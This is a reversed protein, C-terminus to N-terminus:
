TFMKEWHTSDHKSQKSFVDLGISRKFIFTDDKLVYWSQLEDWHGDVATLHFEKQFLKFKNSFTKIIENFQEMTDSTDTEEYTYVKNYGKQQRLFDYMSFSEFQTDFSLCQIDYDEYYNGNETIAFTMQHLTDACVYHTDKIDGDALEILLKCPNGSFDGRSKGKHLMGYTIPELGAYYTFGGYNRQFQLLELSAEVSQKEFASMIVNEDVISEKFEAKSLYRKARESLAV